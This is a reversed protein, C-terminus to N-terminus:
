RKRYQWDGVDCYVQSQASVSRGAKVAKMPLLHQSDLETLPLRSRLWLLCAVAAQTIAPAIWFKIVEEQLDSSGLWSLQLARTHWQTLFFFFMSSDENLEFTPQLRPLFRLAVTCSFLLLGGLFFLSKLFFFYSLVFVHFFARFRSFFGRIIFTCLSCWIALEFWRRNPHLLVHFYVIKWTSESPICWGEMFYWYWFDTKWSTKLYNIASSSIPPCTSKVIEIRMFDLSTLAVMKNPTIQGRFSGLCGDSM